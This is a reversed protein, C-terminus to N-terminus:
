VTANAKLLPRWHVFGLLLTWFLDAATAHGIAKLKKYVIIFELAHLALLVLGVNMVGAEWAGPFPMFINIIFASALILGVIRNINKM